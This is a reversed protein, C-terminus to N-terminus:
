THVIYNGWISAIFNFCNNKAIIYANFKIHTNNNNNINVFNVICKRRYKFYM